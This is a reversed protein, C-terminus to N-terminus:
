RLTGAGATQSIATTAPATMSPPLGGIASAGPTGGPPTAAGPFGPLGSLGPVNINIGPAAGQGASGGLIYEVKVTVPKAAGGKGGVKALRLNGGTLQATTLPGYGQMGKDEPSRLTTRIKGTAQALAIFGAEEPTVEVTVTAYRSLAERQADTMQAAEAGLATTRTGTAIVRVHQLMPYIQQGNSTPDVTILNLDIFDGPKLMQSISNLEDIDVTLARMGNALSGSLAKPRDDVVDQRMLPRGRQVPRLLPRGKVADFEDATLTDAYVLDAAIERGAVVGEQLVAGRPLDSTPVVVM